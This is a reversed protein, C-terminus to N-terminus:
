NTYTYIDQLGNSRTASAIPIVVFATRSSTLRLLVKSLAISEGRSVGGAEDELVGVGTNSLKATPAM